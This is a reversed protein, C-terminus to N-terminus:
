TNCKIVGLARDNEILELDSRLDIFKQKWISSSQFDILQMELDEFNLWMLIELNLTELLTTDPHLIFQTTEAFQRFQAFRSVFENILEQIVECFM